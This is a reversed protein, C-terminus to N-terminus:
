AVHGIDIPAAPLREAYLRALLHGLNPPFVSESTAQLEAASWWRFGVISTAEDDTLQAPRPDFHNLRVHLWDEHVDVTRGSYTYTVDRTWVPTGEPLESLGTEEWAERAAATQLSEGSEVGGGVPYWHHAGTQTDRGCVLLLRDHEDTLLLKM